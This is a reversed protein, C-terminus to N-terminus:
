EANIEDILHEKAKDKLDEVDMGKHEEVSLEYRGGAHVTRGENRASYQIIVHDVENNKMVENKSKIEIIM